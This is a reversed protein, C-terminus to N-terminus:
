LETLARTGTPKIYGTWTIDAGLGAASNKLQFIKGETLVRGEEGFDFTIPGIGPSAKTGAIVVGNSDLFTLTAANDVLVNVLIKQVCISYKAVLAVLDRATASLNDGAALVTSGSIDRFLSRNRNNYSGM